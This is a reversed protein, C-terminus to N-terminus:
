EEPWVQGEMLRLFTRMREQSLASLQPISSAEAAFCLRDVCSLLTELRANERDRQEYPWIRQRYAPDRRWNLLPEEAHLSRKPLLRRGRCCRDGGLCRHLRNGM